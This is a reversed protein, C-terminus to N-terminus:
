RAALAPGGFSFGVLLAAENRAFESSALSNGAGWRTFRFAPTIVDVGKAGHISPGSATLRM